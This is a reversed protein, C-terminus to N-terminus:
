RPKKEVALCAEGETRLLVDLDDFGLWARGNRGWETGWSNTIQVRRKKVNVARLLYAHGGLVEGTLDIFGKEDPEEMGDYWDTGVVVPGIELLVPIVDKARWAWRYEEVMGLSRLVKAGARVSTGEYDQGDWEDLFQALMYIGMPDVLQRIPAAALWHAWAFGVCSPTYGQDGRWWTDNWTRSNRTTTLRPFRFKRDRKDVAVDRGYSRRKM